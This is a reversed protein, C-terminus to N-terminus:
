KTKTPYINGDVYNTPLIIWDKCYINAWEHPCKPGFWTQPAVVIKNKNRSLYAGWWSFSSNSIVFNDCLSMLWMQEHVPANIFHVNPLHNLNLKCWNIDDSFVMYNNITPIKELAAEIYEKTIVPHYDKYILYDGRRVSICVTKNNELFPYKRYADEIFEITPSFLQKIAESYKIFYSESQFYGSFITAKTNIVDNPMKIYLDLKRFINNIFDKMHGVQEKPIILQRNQELSQAYAHAIMFMNNGLRGAISPVVCDSNIFKIM